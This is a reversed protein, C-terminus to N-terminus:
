SARHFDLRLSLDIHTLKGCMMMQVVGGHVAKYNTIVSVPGDGDNDRVM